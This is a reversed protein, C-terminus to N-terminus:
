YRYVLAKGDDGSAVVTGLERSVAICRVAGRNAHVGYCLAMGALDYCLLMGDGGGSFLVSSSSSSSSGGGGGRGEVARLAYVPAGGRHNRHHDFVHVVRCGARPELVCVRGDAGGSCLYPGAAVLCGVAATTGRAADAHCEVRHACAMATVAGNNTIPTTPTIRTDWIKVRGDQGGTAFVSPGASASPSSFSSSSSSSLSLVCTVQGQHATRVSSHTNTVPYCLTLMTPSLRNSAPKGWGCVYKLLAGSALDWLHLAGRRTGSLLHADGFGFDLVPDL